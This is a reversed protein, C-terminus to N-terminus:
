VAGTDTAEALLRAAPELYSVERYRREGPRADAIRALTTVSSLACRRDRPDHWLHVGSVARQVMVIPLQHSVIVVEGGDAAEWADDIGALMRAAVQRYPEGWSPRFPNAIWHWESPHNLVGRFEHSRGEFRNTPEIFREDITPTLGTAEAWPAASEQARQLPSCYLSDIPHGSFHGATAAAMDHGLESLGFGPIRGYLVGEPNHVEGHRVLHILSATV